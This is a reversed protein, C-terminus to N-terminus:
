QDNVNIEFPANPVLDGPVLPVGNVRLNTGPRCQLASRPDVWRLPVADTDLAPVLLGNLIFRQPDFRAAKTLSVPTTPGAGEGERVSAIGKVMSAIFAVVVVTTPVVLAITSLKKEKLLMGLTQM